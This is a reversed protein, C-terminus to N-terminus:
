EIARRCSLLPGLDFFTPFGQRLVRYLNHTRFLDGYHNNRRDTYHKCEDRSHGSDEEEELRPRNEELTM